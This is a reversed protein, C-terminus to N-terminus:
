SKKLEALRSKFEELQQDKSKVQGWLEEVESSLDQKIQERTEQEKQFLTIKEKLHKAEQHAQIGFSIM